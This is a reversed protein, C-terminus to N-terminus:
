LPAADAPWGCGIKLGSRADRWPCSRSKLNTGTLV